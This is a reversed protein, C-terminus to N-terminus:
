KKHEPEFHIRSAAVLAAHAVHVTFDVLAPHLLHEVHPINARGTNSVSIEVSPTFCVHVSTLSAPCNAPVLVTSQAGASRVSNSLLLLEGVCAQVEPVAGAAGLASAVQNQFDSLVAPQWPKFSRGAGNDLWRALDGGLGNVNEAVFHNCSYSGRVLQLRVVKGPQVEAEMSLHASLQFRSRLHSTFVQVGNQWVQQRLELDAPLALHFNFNMRNDGTSCLWGVNVKLRQPVDRAIVRSKEWNGHNRRVYIPTLGQISPIQAQHGWNNEKEIVLQPPLAQVLREKILASLTEVLKNPGPQAAPVPPLLNPAATDPPEQANVAGCFLALVGVGLWKIWAGM